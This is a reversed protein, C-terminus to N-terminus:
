RGFLKDMEIDYATRASARGLRRSTPRAVAGRGPRASALNRTRRLSNSTEFADFLMDMNDDYDDDDISIIELPSAGGSPGRSSSMPSMRASRRTSRTRTAGNKGKSSSTKAKSTGRKTRQTSDADVETTTVRKEYVDRLIPPARATTSEKTTEDTCVAIVTTPSKRV